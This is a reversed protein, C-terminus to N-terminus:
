TEQEGSPPSNGAVATGCDEKTPLAEETSPTKVQFETSVDNKVHLQTPKIRTAENSDRAIRMIVGGIEPNNLICPEKYFKLDDQITSSEPIAPIQDFKLATPNPYYLQFLREAINRDKTRVGNFVLTQASPFVNATDVVSQAFRVLEITGEFASEEPKSTIVLQDAALIAGVMFMDHAGHCDLIVRTIARDSARVHHSLFTLFLAIEAADLRSEGSGLFGSNPLRSPLFYCNKPRVGGHWDEKENVTDQYLQLLTIPSRRYANGSYSFERRLGHFSEPTIKSLQLAGAADRHLENKGLITSRFRTLESLVSSQGLRLGRYKSTLGRNHLDFDVLLVNETRSYAEALGLAITSKGVGGKGSVIATVQPQEDLTAWYNDIHYAELVPQKIFLQSRETISDLLEKERADDNIEPRAKDGFILRKLVAVTSNDDGPQFEIKRTIEIGAGIGMFSAKASMKATADSKPDEM